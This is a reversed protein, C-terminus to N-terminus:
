VSSVRPSGANRCSTSSVHAPETDAFARLSPCTVLMPPKHSAAVNCAGTVLDATCSRRLFATNDVVANSNFHQAHHGVFRQHPRAVKRISQVVLFFSYPVPIKAIHVSHRLRQKLQVPM